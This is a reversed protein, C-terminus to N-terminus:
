AGAASAAAHYTTKSTDDCTDHAAPQATSASPAADPPETHPTGADPPAPEQAVPEMLEGIASLDPNVGHHRIYRTQEAPSLGCKMLLHRAMAEVAAYEQQKRRLEMQLQLVQPDIAQRRARRMIRLTRLVATATKQDGRGLAEQVVDVARNALGILRAQASECMEQQWANYAARFLPDNRIWRFVTLRTVGAAEAAKVFTAGTRIQEMAAQQKVPLKELDFNLAPREPQAAPAEDSARGARPASHRSRKHSRGNDGHAKGNHRAAANERIGDNRKFM